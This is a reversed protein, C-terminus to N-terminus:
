PLRWGAGPRNSIYYAAGTCVRPEPGTARGINHIDTGDGVQQTSCARLQGPRASAAMSRPTHCPSLHGPGRGWWLWLGPGPNRWQSPAYHM